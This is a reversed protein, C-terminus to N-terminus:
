MQPLSYKQRDRVAKKWQTNTVEGERQRTALVGAILVHLLRVTLGLKQGWVLGQSRLLPRLEYRGGRGSQIHTNEQTQAHCDSCM